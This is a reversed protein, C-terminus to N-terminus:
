KKTELRQAYDHYLNDQQGYDGAYEQYDQYDGAYDYNDTQSLASSLCLLTTGAAAAFFKM